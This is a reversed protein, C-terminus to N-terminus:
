KGMVLQTIRQICFSIEDTAEDQKTESSNFQENNVSNEELNISDVMEQCGVVYTEFAKELKKHIGMVKIPAKLGKIEALLGRYKDTGSLFLEQTEKLQEGTLNAVKDSDIATRITEYSPNMLEGIEESTTVIDNIKQIYYGLNPKKM